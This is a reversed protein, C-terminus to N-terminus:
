INRKKTGGGSWFPLACNIGNKEYSYKVQYGEVICSPSTM